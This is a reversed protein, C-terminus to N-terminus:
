NSRQIDIGMSRTHTLQRQLNKINRTGLVPVVENIPSEGFYKNWLTHFKGPFTKMSSCYTFHVFMTKAYNVPVKEKLPSDIVKKRYNLYNNCTLLQNINLKLLVYNFQEDIFENPYNNLLLAMRLKERENPYNQFTSCYRIARLLM